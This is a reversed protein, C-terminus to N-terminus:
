GRQWTPISVSTDAATGGSSLLKKHSEQVLGCCAVMFFYFLINKKRPWGHPKLIVTLAVKLDRLVAFDLIDFDFM